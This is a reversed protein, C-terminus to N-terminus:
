FRDASKNNVVSIKRGEKKQEGPSLIGMEKKATLTYKKDYSFCSTKHDFYIIAIPFDMAEKNLQSIIKNHILTTTFEFRYLGEPEKQMFTNVCILTGIYGPKTIRLSYYRNKELFYRFKKKGEKLILTDIKGDPTIIEVVCDSGPLDNANEIIGELQLCVVSDSRNASYFNGTGLLMLFVPILIANKM